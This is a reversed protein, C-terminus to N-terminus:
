IKLISFDTKRDFHDIGEAKKLRKALTTSIPLMVAEVGVKILTAVIISEWLTDWPLIGWLGFLYFIATNVFQGVLTSVMFRWAMWKGKSYVKMKALVYNNAMEGVYVAVIGSIVMTPMASLITVFADNNTFSEAPPYYAVAQFFLTVVIQTLATYLVVYRAAAYGYVEAIVDALVCLIPFFLVSISVPYGALDIMKGSTPICILVAVISWALLHYFYKYRTVDM